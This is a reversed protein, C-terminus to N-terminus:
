MERPGPGTDFPGRNYRNGPDPAGPWDDPLEPREDAAGARDRSQRSRQAPQQGPDEGPMASLRAYLQLGSDNVRSPAPLAPPLDTYGHYRASARPELAMLAPNGTRGVRTAPSGGVQIEAYAYPKGALLLLPVPGREPDLGVTSLANPVTWLEGARNGSAGLLRLEGSEAVEYVGVGSYRAGFSPTDGTACAVQGVEVPRYPVFYTVHISGTEPAPALSDVEWRNLTEAVDVFAVSDRYSPAPRGMALRTDVQRRAQRNLSAMGLGAVVAGGGVGAAAAAIPMGGSSAAFNVNANKPISQATLIGHGTGPTDSINLTGGTQTNYAFAVSSAAQGVHGAEDVPGNFANNGLLVIQSVGFEDGSLSYYTFSNNPYSGEATTCLNGVFVSPRFRGMAFEVQVGTYSGPPTSTVGFNDVENCYFFLGAVHSLYIGNQSNHYVHNNAIFWGASREIRFAFSGGCYTVVNNLLYGDTVRGSGHTDVLWVGYQGPHSITSEEIRNEVANNLCVSGRANKDSLVIGSDPTNSVLVHRILCRESMLVIGHGHKNSASNGDIGLDEIQVSQSTALRNELFNQDAVVAILNANPKQQITCELNNSGRYTSGSLLVITKSVAYVGPPFWVTGGPSAAIAAQIARADDNVGDGKAGFSKVNTIPGAAARPDTGHASASTAKSAVQSSAASYVLSGFLGRRSFSLM